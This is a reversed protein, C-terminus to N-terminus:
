AGGQKRAADVLYDPRVWEGRVIKICDDSDLMYDGHEVCYDDEAKIAACIRERELRAADELVSYAAQAPPTTYFIRTEFLNPKASLEAYREETCTCFDDLGRRRFAFVPEGVMERSAEADPCEHGYTLMQAAASPPDVPRTYDFSRELAGLMDQWVKLASFDGPQGHNGAVLMATSPEVPVWTWKGQQAPATVSDAPARAARGEFKCPNACTKPDEPCDGYCEAIQRTNAPAPQSDAQTTPAHRLGAIQETLQRVELELAQIREQAPEAALAAEWGREFGAGFVKRRDMSDIQPRAEFYGDESAIGHGQRLALNKEYNSM